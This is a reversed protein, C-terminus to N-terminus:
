NRLMRTKIGNGAITQSRPRMALREQTMYREASEARARYQPWISALKNLFRRLERFACFQSNLAYMGPM